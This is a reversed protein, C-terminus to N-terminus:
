MTLVPLHTAAMTCLSPQVELLSPPISATWGVRQVIAAVRGRTAVIHCFAELPITPLSQLGPVHVAHRVACCPLVTIQCLCADTMPVTSILAKVQCCECNDSLCCASQM